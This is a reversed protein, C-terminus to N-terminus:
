SFGPFAGAVLGSGRGPGRVGVLPPEAALGAVLGAVHGRGGAQSASSAASGCLRPRKPARGGASGRAGRRPREEGARAGTPESWGGPLSRGGSTSRLATSDRSLATEPVGATAVARFFDIALLPGSFLFEPCLYKSSFTAIAQGSLVRPVTTRHLSADPSCNGFHRPLPRVKPRRRWPKSTIIPNHLLPIRTNLCMRYLRRLSTEWNCTGSEPAM